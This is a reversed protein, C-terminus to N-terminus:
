DEEPYEGVKINNVVKKVGEVGRALREAEEKDSKEKVRGTLYVTGEQTTVDINFPNIEPDATYQSKIKTTIWSDEAQVSAPQTSACSELLPVAGLAVAALALPLLRRNM